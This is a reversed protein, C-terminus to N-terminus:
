RVNDHTITCSKFFRTFIIDSKKASTFYFEYSQIAIRFPSVPQRLRGDSCSCIDGGGWDKGFYDVWGGGFFFMDM